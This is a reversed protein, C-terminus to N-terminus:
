LDREAAQAHLDDDRIAALEKQHADEVLEYLKELAEEGTDEIIGLLDIPQTTGPWKVRDSGDCLYVGILTYQEGDLEDPYYHFEAQLDTGDLEITVTHTM